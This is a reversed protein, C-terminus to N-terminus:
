PSDPAAAHIADVIEGASTASKGEVAVVRNDANGIALILADLKVNIAGTDHAQANNLVFVMLFTAISSTTNMVLQWTDSFHFARGSFAWTLVVIFATATAAPSATFRAVGRAWASFRDIM